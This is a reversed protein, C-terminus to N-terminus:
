INLLLLFHNQFDPEGTMNDRGQKERHIKINDEEGLHSPHCRTVCTLWKRSLFEKMQPQNHHHSNFHKGQWWINLMALLCVYLAVNVCIVHVSTFCPPPSQRVKDETKTKRQFINQQKTCQHCHQQAQRGTCSSFFCIAGGKLGWIVSSQPRSFKSVWNVLSGTCSVGSSSYTWDKWVSM